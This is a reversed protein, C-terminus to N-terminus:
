HPVATGTAPTVIETEVRFIEGARRALIRLQKPSAFILTSGRLLSDYKKGEVGDVVVWPQGGHGAVHGLHKSDPSFM